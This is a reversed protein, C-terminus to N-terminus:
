GGLWALLLGLVLSAMVATPWRGLAGELWVALRGPAPSARLRRGMAAVSGLPWQRGPLALHLVQRWAVPLAHGLPVVRDGPRLAPLHPTLFRRALLAAALAAPVVLWVAAGVVAGGAVARYAAAALALMAMLAAPVTSGDSGTRASPQVAPAPPRLMASAALFGLIGMAWVATAAPVPGPVMAALAGPAAALLAVASWGAVTAVIHARPGSPATGPILLLAALAFIAQVLMTGLPGAVLSWTGPHQLQSGLVALWLGGLAMTGYALVARRHAQLFGAVLGYALAAWGVWVLVEGAAPAAMEGLPLLRLGGLLGAGLMFALVAPGLARGASVMIPPLWFHLGPLGLKIGFGTILLALTLGPHESNLLAGRLAAFDLTPAGHGLTMLVEFVLLDSAVLFVVLLRGARHATAGAAVAVVGYLAYGALVTAAYFLPGDGALAMAFAGAMALLMLIALGHSGAAQLRPRMLLGSALWLVSMLVLFLRGPADLILVAGMLATDLPLVADGTVAVGLAPLAAFPVLPRVFPRARGTAVAMALLLPVLPPLVLLLPNGEIM